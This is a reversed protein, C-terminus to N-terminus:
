TWLIYDSASNVTVRRISGNLANLIMGREGHPKITKQTKITTKCTDLYSNLANKNNHKLGAIQACVENILRWKLTAHIFKPIQLIQLSVWM